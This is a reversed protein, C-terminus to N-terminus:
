NILLEYHPRTDNTLTLDILQMGDILNWEKDQVQYHLHNGTSYGTTGVSALETWHNVKDGVKVKSSNPYLHAFMVYYTEDYDENCKIIMTNGVANGSQDYPVNKDQTFNIKYVKGSCVSYVPTKEPVAFDLGDHINTEGYVEREKLFELKSTDDSFEEMLGKYYDKNANLDIKDDLKYIRLNLDKIQYLYKLQNFFNSKQINSTLSLDIADVSFVKAFSGERLKVLEDDRVLESNIFSSAYKIKKKLISRTIYRHKNNKKRVFKEILSHERIQKKLSKDKKLLIM